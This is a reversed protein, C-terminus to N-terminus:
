CASRLCQGRCHMDWGRSASRRRCRVVVRLVAGYALALSLVVAVIAVAGAVLISNIAAPVFGEAFAEGFHAFAHRALVIVPVVFGIVVPLACLVAAAYGAM